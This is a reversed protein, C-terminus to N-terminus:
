HHLDAIEGSNRVTECVYSLYETRSLRTSVFAAPRYTVSSVDLITNPWVSAPSVSPSSSSSGTLNPMELRLTSVLSGDCPASALFLSKTGERSVFQLLHVIGKAGVKDLVVLDAVQAFHLQMLCVGLQQIRRPGFGQCCWCSFRPKQLWM